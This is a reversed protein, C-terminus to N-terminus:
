SHGRAGILVKMPHKSRKIISINNTYLDRIDDLELLLMAIRDIGIGWAIVNYEKPDIGVARLLGPRFVGGPYVEVWGLKPHKIFGEVSPETFPFYAPKFKVEGLGMKKSFEKFFGLLDSFKVNKGVVIGELQHFEMSHTPDLTESRFVRDLSFVRYEGGKREYMVRASVATTHTRLLLRLAEEARWHYHYLREHEEKTREVVDAPPEPLNANEVYFVDSEYRAPHYQPVLLVDFNWLAQEVFNGTAEEFGMSILVERVYKYLEMLPHRRAVRRAPVKVSFDFKKFEKNKWQGTVILESTLKTILEKAEIKNEKLLKLALDTIRVKIIKRKEQKVFGREKLVKFCEEAEELKKPSSLMRLCSKIKELYNKFEDPLGLFKVKGKSIEIVKFRKLRGFAASFEEKSLGERLQSIPVEGEKLRELIVEEPLPRELYAKGKESLEILTLTIHVSEILRKAELEAIYRMIDEKKKGLAEALEEATVEKKDKLVELMDYEIKPLVVGELAKSGM